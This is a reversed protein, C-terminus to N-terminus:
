FPIPDSSGVNSPNTDQRAPAVSGVVVRIENNYSEEVLQLTVPKGLADSRTFKAQRGDESLGLATVVETVKWMAAPTVATYYRYSHGSHPGGTLSFHWIWMPNGARSHGKELDTLKAQYDGPNPKSREDAVDMQVEFVEDSSPQSYPNNPDM